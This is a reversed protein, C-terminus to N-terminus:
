TELVEIPVEELRVWSAEPVERIERSVYAFGHDVALYDPPGMYTLIWVHHDRWIEASSQQTSLRCRHFADFIRGHPPRRTVNHVHYRCNHSPQIYTLRKWANVQIEATHDRVRLLSYM